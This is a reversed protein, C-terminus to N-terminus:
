CTSSLKVLATNTLKVWRTVYAWPWTSSMLESKMKLKYSKAIHMHLIKKLTRSSCSTVSIRLSCIQLGLWQLKMSCNQLDWKTTQQIIYTSSYLGTSLGHLHLNCLTINKSIGEATYTTNRKTFKLLFAILNQLLSLSKTKNTYINQLNHYLLFPFIPLKKYECMPKNQLDPRM